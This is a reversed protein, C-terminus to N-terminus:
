RGSSPPSASASGSASSQSIGNRAGIQGNVESFFTSSDGLTLTKQCNPACSWTEREFGRQVTLTKKDSASVEVVFEQLTAGSQDLTLINTVGYGKGTIVMVGNSQVTTDAIIPNGVVITATDLPIKVISVLDLKVALTVPKSAPKAAAPQASAPTPASSASKAADPSPKAAEAPQTMKPADKVFAPSAPAMQAPQAPASMHSKTPAHSGSSRSGAAGPADEIEAQVPFASMLALSGLFIGLLSSSLLLARANRTM